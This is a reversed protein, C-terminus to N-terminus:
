QKGTSGFGGEGRDTEDLSEAETLRVAPVPMIVLQAIREGPQITYPEDFHNILPVMIEGRYDSDIVGVCNVPAIGHKSALGSRAFILAALEKEPLAIAIGTKILSTKGGEITLPESLLARLDFGASGSTAKKPVAADPHLKVFKVEKM